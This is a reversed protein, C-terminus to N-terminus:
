RLYPFRMKLLGICHEGKIRAKALKSKFYKQRPNMQSKPPNKFAPVMIASIQIASDGLFYANHKIHDSTRLITPINM